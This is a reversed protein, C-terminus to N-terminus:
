RGRRPSRRIATNALSQRIVTRPLVSSSRVTDAFWDDEVFDVTNSRSDYRIALVQGTTSRVGKLMPVTPEAIHQSM